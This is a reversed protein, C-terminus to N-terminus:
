RKEIIDICKGAAVTMGMDRVAFRSLPPYETAKEIVLPRVPRIKVIAVDGPKIFQPHEEKIEGTRPDLKAETRLEPRM